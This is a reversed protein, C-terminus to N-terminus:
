NIIQTLETNKPAVVAGGRCHRKKRYTTLTPLGEYLFEMAEYDQTEQHMPPLFVAQRKTLGIIKNIKAL